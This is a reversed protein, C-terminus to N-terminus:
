APNGTAGDPTTVGRVLVDLQAAVDDFPRIDRQARCMAVAGEVGAVVLTAVQGAQEPEAGHQRLAAALKRQWTTFVQAAATVAEGNDDPPEEVAVALVACGARFDNDILTQRWLTLFARLAAAPGAHLEREMIESVRQGAHHIAEAALQQKGRPFYHYTSGLPAGSHGALDRITSGALGRRRILDAAGAVIRQRPAASDRTM